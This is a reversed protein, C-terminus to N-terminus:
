FLSLPIINKQFYSSKKHINLYHNIILSPTLLYFIFPLPLLYFTFPLLYFTFPLVLTPVILM